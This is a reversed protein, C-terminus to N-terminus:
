GASVHHKQFLGFGKCFGYIAEQAVNILPFSSGLQEAVPDQRSAHRSEQEARELAAQRSDALRERNSVRASHRARAMCNRVIDSTSGRRFALALRAVTTSGEIERYAVGTVQVQRFSAPM